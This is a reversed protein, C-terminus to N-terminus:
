ILIFAAAALIVTGIFGLTWPSKFISTGSAQPLAESSTPLAAGVAALGIAATPANVAYENIQVNVKKNIIPEKNVALPKVVQITNSSIKQESPQSNSILPYTTAVEGSPYLLSASDTIPLQIVRTPFLTTRGALIHTNEPIKFEKGGASLRWLSLDLTRSDNNALTIGRPSISVIKISADKVTIIMESLADGGDSTVAHVIALYEGSDYYAHFVSAGTKRMGDGFSWTVTADDRKNGKGDYVAATFATDAGSSVTRVGSTIIRLTPIPLYETPGGSSSTTTDTTTDTTDSSDGSPDSSGDDPSAITITRSSDTMPLNDPAPATSTASILITYIGDAVRTGADSKGDWIKATPNTVPNSSSGSSPYLQRIKTGSASMIKISARVQESFKVTIATTTALGSAATATPYITDHSVTITATPEGAHAFAPFFLVLILLGAIRM